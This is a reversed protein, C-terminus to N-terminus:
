FEDVVARTRVLEQFRQAESQMHTFLNGNTSTRLTEALPDYSSIAKGFKSIPSIRTLFALFKRMTEMESCLPDSLVGDGYAVPDVYSARENLAAFLFAEVDHTDRLSIEENRRWFQFHQWVSRLETDKVSSNDPVGTASWVLAEPPVGMIDAELAIGRTFKQVSLAIQRQVSANTATAMFPLFIDDPCCELSCSLKPGGREDYCSCMCILGLESPSACRAVTAGYLEVYDVFGLEWSAPASTCIRYDFSLFAKGFGSLNGPYDGVSGGFQRFVDRQFDLWVPSTGRALVEGDKMLQYVVDNKLVSCVFSEVETADIFNVCGQDGWFEAAQQLIDTAVVSQFIQRKRRVDSPEDGQGGFPFALRVLDTEAGLAVDVWSRHLDAIEDPIGAHRLGLTSSWRFQPTWARSAAYALPMGIEEAFNSELFQNTSM